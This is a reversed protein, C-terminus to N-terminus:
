GRRNQRVPQHPCTQRHAYDNRLCFLANILYNLSYMWKSPQPPSNLYGTEALAANLRGLRHSCDGACHWGVVAAFDSRGAAIGGAVRRVGAGAVADSRLSQGVGPQHRPEVALLGALQLLYGFLYHEPRGALELSHHLPRGAVSFVAPVDAGVAGVVFRHLGPRRNPCDLGPDPAHHFLVASRGAAGACLWVPQHSEAGGAILVAVGIFAMLGFLWHFWYARDRFFFHGVFVMLLPELGVITIASAASTYKVGLFQLMLVVVYNLLSLWLLPKWQAKRVRGLHRRCLPLVIMAAILLRLLVVLAPDLMTYAYKAAVFSSSWMLLAVILYFM